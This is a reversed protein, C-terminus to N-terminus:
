LEKGLVMKGLISKGLVGSTDGTIYRYAIELVKEINNAGEHTLHNMSDPLPPFELDGPCADRVAKVNNLYQDLTGRILGWNTWNSSVELTLGLLPAIEKVAANVRNIDTCNYAGKAAYGRYEARQSDTLNEYGISQLKKLREVHHQTRDTVFEIM